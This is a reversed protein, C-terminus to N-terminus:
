VSFLCNQGHPRHGQILITVSKWGTCGVASEWNSWTLSCTSLLCKLGTFINPRSKNERGKTLHSMPAKHLWYWEEVTMASLLFERNWGEMLLELKHLVSSIIRSSIGNHKQWWMTFDWLGSDAASFSNSDQLLCLVTPMAHVEACSINSAWNNREKLVIHFTSIM